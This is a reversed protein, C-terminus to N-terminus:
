EEKLDRRMLSEIADKPDKYEYLIKYVQETIPMSINHKIAEEHIVKCAQIGEVTTKNTKM